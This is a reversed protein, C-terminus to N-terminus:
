GVGYINRKIPAIKLALISMFQINESTIHDVKLKIKFLNWYLINMLFLIKRTDLM